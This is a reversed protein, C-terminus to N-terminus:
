EQRPTCVARRVVLMKNPGSEQTNRSWIQVLLPGFTLQM